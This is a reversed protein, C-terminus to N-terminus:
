SYIKLIEDVCCCLWVYRSSGAYVMIVVVAYFVIIVLRCVGVGGLWGCGGVGGGKIM